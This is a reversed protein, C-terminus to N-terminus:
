PLPASPPLRKHRAGEAEPPIHDLIAQRLEWWNDCIAPVVITKAPSVIQNGDADTRFATVDKWLIAQELKGTFDRLEVRDDFICISRFMQFCTWYLFGITAMFAMFVIFGKVAPNAEVQFILFYSFLLFSSSYIVLNAWPNATLHGNFRCFEWDKNDPASASGANALLM